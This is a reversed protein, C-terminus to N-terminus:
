RDALICLLSTFPNPTHVVHDEAIERGLNADLHQIHHPPWRVMQQNNFRYTENTGRLALPLRVRDTASALYGSSQQKSWRSSTGVQETTGAARSLTGTFAASDGFSPFFAPDRVPRTLKECVAHFPRSPSIV